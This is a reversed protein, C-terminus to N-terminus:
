IKKTFINSTPWRGNVMSIGVCGMDSRFLAFNFSSSHLLFWPRLIFSSFFLINIKNICHIYVIRFFYSKEEKIETFYPRDFYANKTLKYKIFFFGSKISLLEFEFINELEWGTSFTYYVIYSHERDGSGARGGGGWGRDRQFEFEKTWEFLLLPNYYIRAYKWRFGRWLKILGNNIWIGNM